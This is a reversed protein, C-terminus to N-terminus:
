GQLMFSAESSSGLPARHQQCARDVPALRSRESAISSSATSDSSHNLKKRYRNRPRLEADDAILQSFSSGISREGANRLTIKGSARLGARIM